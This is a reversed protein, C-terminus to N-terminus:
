LFIPNLVNSHYLEYWATFYEPYLGHFSPTFFYICGTMTYSIFLQQATRTKLMSCRFLVFTDKVETNIMM